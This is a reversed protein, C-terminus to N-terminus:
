LWTNIEYVPSGRRLGQGAPGHSCGFEFAQNQCAAYKYQNTSTTNGDPFCPFLPIRGLLDEVRVVYLTPVHSSEYLKRIANSEMTGADSTRLRLEQFTSFFVQDLCINKWLVTTFVAPQTCPVCLVTSSSSCVYVGTQILFPHPM